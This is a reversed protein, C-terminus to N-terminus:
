SGDPSPAIEGRGAQQLDAPLPAGAEDAVITLDTRWRIIAARQQAQTDPLNDLEGDSLGSVLASLYSDELIYTDAYPANLAQLQATPAQLANIQVTYQAFRMELAGMRAAAKAPSIRHDHFAELIPDAGNLLKNVGLRIPEVEALYEEVDARTTAPPDAAARAHRVEPQSAGCGAVLVLVVALCGAIAPFRRSGM